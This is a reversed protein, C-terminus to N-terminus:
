RDHFRIEQALIPARLLPKIGAYEVVDVKRHFREELELWLTALEVLSSGMKQEVLLDIDSAETATGDAYSGFLGARKVGHKLLVPLAAEM